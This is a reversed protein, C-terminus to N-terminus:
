EVMNLQKIEIKARFLLKTGLLVLFIQFIIASLFKFIPLHPLIDTKNKSSVHDFYKHSKSVTFINKEDANSKGVIKM